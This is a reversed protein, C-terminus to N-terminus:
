PNLTHTTRHERMYENIYFKHISVTYLYVVLAMSGEQVGSEIGRMDVKKHM